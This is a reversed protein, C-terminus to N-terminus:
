HGTFTRVRSTWARMGDEFEVLYEPGDEAQWIQKITGLYEGPQGEDLGGDYYGWVHSGITLRTM